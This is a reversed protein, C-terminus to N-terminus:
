VKRWIKSQRNKTLLVRAFRRLRSVCLCVAGLAVKLERLCFKLIRGDLRVLVNGACSKVGDFNCFDIMLELAFRM